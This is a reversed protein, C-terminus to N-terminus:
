LIEIEVRRNKQRDEESKEPNVLPNNFNYGKYQLRNKNIGNEILFDYVAKARIESITLGGPGTLDYNKNNGGCCVHGQIEISIETHAELQALLENLTPYSVPLFRGSNNEFLIHKLVIKDGKKAAKIESVKPTTEEVVVITEVVVEPIFALVVQVCRNSLLDKGFQKTQGKGEGTISIDSKTVVKELYNIIVIKRSESLTVNSERNGTTDAYGNIQISAVNEWNLKKLYNEVGQIEQSEITSSNPKFHVYMTDSKQAFVSTVLLVLGLILNNSIQQPKM